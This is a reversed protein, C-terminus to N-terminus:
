RHLVLGTQVTADSAAQWEALMTVTMTCRAERQEYIVDVIRRCTAPVCVMQGLANNVVLPRFICGAPEWATKLFPVLETPKEERGVRM